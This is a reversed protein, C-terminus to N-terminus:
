EPDKTTPPTFQWCRVPKCHAQATDSERWGAFTVLGEKAARRMVHGWAAAREACGFEGPLAARIKETTFILGPKALTLAHKLKAYCRDSWGEDIREVKATAQNMGQLALQEAERNMDAKGGEADQNADSAGTAAHM